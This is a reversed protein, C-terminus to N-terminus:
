FPIDDEMDSLDASPKQPPAHYTRDPAPAKEKPWYSSLAVSSDDLNKPPVGAPNFYRDLMVIYGPGKSENNNDAKLLAGVKVWHRKTGDGYPVGVVLDAVLKMSM